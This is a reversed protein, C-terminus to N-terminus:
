RGGLYDALRELALKRHSIENKLRADEAFTKNHGEPMFIPDYGFGGEGKAEQSISGRVRGKFIKQGGETVLGVVSEFAAGRDGVGELLRLIGKNGITRQAYSSYVGPFGKLADIFLGADEIFTGPELGQIAEQVVEELTDAQVEKYAEPLRAVRLNYSSLIADAERFKHPNTTRFYLM